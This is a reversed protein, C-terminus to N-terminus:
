NVNILCWQARFRLAECGVVVGDCGNGGASTLGLDPECYDWVAGSRELDALLCQSAVACAVACACQM